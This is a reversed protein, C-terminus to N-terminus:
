NRLLEEKEAAQLTKEELDTALVAPKQAGNEFMPHDIKSATSSKVFVQTARRNAPIEGFLVEDEVADYVPIGQNVLTQEAVVTNAGIKVGSVIQSGAGISVNKEIIVPEAEVPELVGGITTNAGIKVNEQIQACSGVTVHSDVLSDDKVHAGINIYNPSMAIIDGVYAGRRITTGSPTNRAGDSINEADQLPFKDRYKLGGYEQIENELLGFGLLIGKKVYKNTEWSGNSPEAARVEGNEMADYLDNLAQLEESGVNESDLESNQYREWLQEIKKQLSSSM